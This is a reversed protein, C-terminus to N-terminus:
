QLKSHLRRGNVFGGIIFCIFAAAWAPWTLIQVDFIRDALVTLSIGLVFARLDIM